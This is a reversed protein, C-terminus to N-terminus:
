YALSRMGARIEAGDMAGFFNSESELEKAKGAETEHDLRGFIPTWRWKNGPM